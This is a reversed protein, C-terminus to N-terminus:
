QNSTKKLIGFTMMEVYLDSVNDLMIKDIVIKIIKSTAMSYSIKLKSFRLQFFASKM